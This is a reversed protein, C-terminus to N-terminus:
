AFLSDRLAARTLGQALASPEVKESGSNIANLAATTERSFRDRAKEWYIDATRKAYDGIDSPLDRIAASAQAYAATASDAVTQLGSRWEKLRTDLGIDLLAKTRADWADSFIIQNEIDKSPSGIFKGQNKSVFDGFAGAMRDYRSKVAPRVDAVWAGADAKMGDTSAASAWAAIGGDAWEFVARAAELCNVKLFEDVDRRTQGVSRAVIAQNPLGRQYNSFQEYLTSSAVPLVDKYFAILAEVANDTETGVTAELTDVVLGAVADRLKEPDIAALVKDDIGLQRGRERYDRVISGLKPVAEALADPWGLAKAKDVLARSVAPPVKGLAHALRGTADAYRLYKDGGGTSAAQIIEGMKRAADQELGDLDKASQLMKDWKLQLAKVQEDLGVAIRALLDRGTAIRTADLQRFFGAEATAQQEVWIKVEVGLNSLGDLLHSLPSVFREVAAAMKEAWDAALAEGGEDRAIERLATLMADRQDYLAGLQGSLREIEPPQLRPKMAEYSALVEKRRSDYGSM